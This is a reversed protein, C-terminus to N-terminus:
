YALAEQLPKSKQKDARQYNIMLMADTNVHELADDSTILVQTNFQNPILIPDETYSNRFPGHAGSTSHQFLVEVLYDEQSPPLAYVTAGDALTMPVGQGVGQFTITTTGWTLVVRQWHLSNCVCTIIGGLPQIISLQIPNSKM